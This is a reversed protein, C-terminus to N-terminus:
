YKQHEGVMYKEALLSGVIVLSLLITFISRLIMESKESYYYSGPYFADVNSGEIICFVTAVVGLFAIIYPAKDKLPRIAFLLYSFFALVASVILEIWLQRSAYVFFLPGILLIATNRIIYMFDGMYLPSGKFEDDFLKFAFFLALFALVITDIIAEMGISYGKGGFIYRFSVFTYFVIFAIVIVAVRPIRKNVFTLFSVVFVIVVSTILSPYFMGRGTILPMMITSFLILVFVLVGLVKRLTKFFASSIM